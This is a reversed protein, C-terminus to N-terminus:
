TRFDFDIGLGRKVAEEYIAAALAVNTIGGQSEHFVIIDEEAQRGSASGVVIDGLEDIDEWNMKGEAILDLIPMPPGPDFYNRDHEKSSVVVQNARLFVEPHIESVRGIGSASIFQGAELWDPDFVPQLSATQTLVIDMGEVAKFANGVPEVPLGLLETARKAFAERNEPNRGFVRFSEISRVCAVGLLVDYANRGPGILGVRKSDTKALYKTAVAVVAGTRLTGFAQSMVALPNGALDTLCVIGGRRAEPPPAGITPGTGGGLSVVMHGSNQLAGTIVRMGGKGGGARVVFPAHESVQRNGQQHFAAEVAEIAKPMDLLPLIEGNKLLLTM